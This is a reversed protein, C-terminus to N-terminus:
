EGCIKTSWNVRNCGPPPAPWPGSSKSEESHPRAKPIETSHYLYIKAESVRCGTCLKPIKKQMSNRISM